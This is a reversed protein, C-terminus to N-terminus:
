GLWHLSLNVSVKNLIQSWKSHATTMPSFTCPRVPYSSPTTTPTVRSLALDGWWSLNPLPGNQFHTPSPGMHAWIPAYPDMHVRISWRTDVHTRSWISWRTGYRDWIPGYPDMHDWSFNCILHGSLTCLAFLHSSKAALGLFCPIGIQEYDSPSRPQPGSIAKKNTSLFSANRKLGGKLIACFRIHHVNASKSLNLTM